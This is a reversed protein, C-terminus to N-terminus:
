SGGAAWTAPSCSRCDPEGAEAVKIRTRREFVAWLAAAAGICGVIVRLTIGIADTSLPSLPSLAAITAGIAIAPWRLDCLAPRTRLAPHECTSVLVGILASTPAALLIWPNPPSGLLWILALAGIAAGAGVMSRRAVTRHPAAVATM